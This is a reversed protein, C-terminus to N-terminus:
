NGIGLFQRTRTDLRAELTAIRSDLEDEQQRFRQAETEAEMIKNRLEQLMKLNGVLIETADMDQCAAQYEVQEAADLTEGTVFRRHLNQWHEYAQQDM